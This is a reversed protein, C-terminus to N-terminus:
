LVRWVKGHKTRVSLTRLNTSGFARGTFYAATDSILYDGDSGTFTISQYCAISISRSLNIVIIVLRDVDLYISKIAYFQKLYLPAGVIWFVVSLIYIWM